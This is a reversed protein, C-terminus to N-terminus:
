GVLYSGPPSHKRIDMEYGLELLEWAKQLTQMAGFGGSFVRDKTEHQAVITWFQEEM